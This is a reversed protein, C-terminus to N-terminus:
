KGAFSRVTRMDEPPIMGFCHGYYLLDLGYTFYYTTGDKGLRFEGDFTFPLRNVTNDDTWGAVNDLINKLIEAQDSTLDVSESSAPQTFEPTPASYFTVTGSEPVPEIPRSPDTPEIKAPKGCGALALLLPLSLIVIPLKKM